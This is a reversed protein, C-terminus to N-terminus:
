AIRYTITLHCSHRMIVVGAIVGQVNRFGSRVLVLEKWVDSRLLVVLGKVM